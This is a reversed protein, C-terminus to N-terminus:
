KSYIIPLVIGGHIFLGVLVTVFYLGLRSFTDAFDKMAMIQGAILFCVGVPALFIIWTTVQLYCVTICTCPPIADFETYYRPSCM